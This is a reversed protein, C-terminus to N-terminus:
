NRIMKRTLILRWKPARGLKWVCGDWITPYNTHCSIMNYGLIDGYSIWPLGMLLGIKLGWFIWGLISSCGEPSGGPVKERRSKLGHLVANLSRLAAGLKGMVESLEGQHSPATSQRSFIDNWQTSYPLIMCVWTLIRFIMELRTQLDSIDWVGSPQDDSALRNTPIRIRHNSFFWVSPHM